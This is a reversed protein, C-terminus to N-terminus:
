EVVMTDIYVTNASFYGATKKRGRDCQINTQLNGHAEDFYGGSWLTEALLSRLYIEYDKDISYKREILQTGKPFRTEQVKPAFLQSIDVTTLSYYYLNAIRRDHSTSDTWQLQIVYKAPHDSVFSEAIYNISRMSDSHKHFTIKDPPIVPMMTSKASLVISDGLEIHLFYVNGVVGVFKNVSEYIGDSVEKYYYTSDDSSVAIFAGKIMNRVTDEYSSLRTLQITHRKYENTIYGDVVITNQDVEGQRFPFEHVCASAIISVAIAFLIKAM